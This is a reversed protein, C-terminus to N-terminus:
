SSFLFEVVFNAFPNRRFSYRKPFDVGWTTDLFIWNKYIDRRYLASIRYNSLYFPGEEGLNTQALLSYNVADKDTMQHILSPGHSSSLKRSLVQWRKSNNFRFLLQESLPYDSDFRTVESLGDEETVYTLEESFRHSWIKFLINKRLRARLVAKPPISANIGADANFYWDERSRTPPTLSDSPSSEKTGPKKAPFLKEAGEKLKKELHPIKFNLRYRLDSEGSADERIQYSGSVRLTSRGFEDDARETAFFSDVRNALADLNSSLLHHTRDLVRYNSASDAQINFSYLILPILLILHM